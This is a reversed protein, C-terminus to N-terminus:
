PRLDFQASLATQSSGGVWVTYAGPEVDWTKEVNWIAMQEQEIRFTVTRSEGAKLHFRSFGKLSRGPTEVSSFNKRLYLQAVEDGDRDGTNTV